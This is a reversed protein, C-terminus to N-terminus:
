KANKRGLNQSFDGLKLPNIYSTKFFFWYSLFIYIPFRLLLHILQEKKKEKDFINMTAM